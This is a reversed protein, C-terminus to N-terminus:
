LFVAPSVKFRAALARIQRANLARRGNLIESVVGQSGIEPLDAQRLGHQRMLLRLVDRGSAEALPHHQAEYAAILNGLTGVLGALSSREDAAGEDLLRNLAALAARYQAGSRIPHLPVLEILAEYRSEIKRLVANM